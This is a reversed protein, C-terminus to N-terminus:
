QSIELNAFHSKMEEFGSTDVASESRPATLNRSLRQLQKVRSKTEPHTDYLRDLLSPRTEAEPIAVQLLNSFELSDYGAMILYQTGLQDAEFEEKRIMSFMVLPGLYRRLLYGAPSGFLAIRAWIRTQTQIRTMHRLTVHATEHALAGALEGETGAIQVLGSTVYIFGGPLSYANPEPDILIKVVFCGPLESRDVIKQELQNVYEVIYNDTIMQVNQEASAALKSGLAWESQQSKLQNKKKWEHADDINLRDCGSNAGTASSFPLLSSSFENTQAPAQLCLLFSVMLVFFQFLVPWALHRLDLRLHNARNM